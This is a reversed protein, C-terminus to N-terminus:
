FGHLEIRSGSSFNATFVFRCHWVEVLHKLEEVFKNWVVVIKEPIIEDWDLKDKCLLRFITKIKATVPAIFGLPDFISASISLLTRKTHKITDCKSVLDDFHFILKDSTTDWGIGLVVKHEVTTNPSTAEFYTMDNDKNLLNSDENERPAIYEALEKDNTVWKHLDFVGQSLIQKVEIMCPKVGRLNIVGVLWIMLM